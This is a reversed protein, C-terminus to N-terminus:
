SGLLVRVKLWLLDVFERLSDSSEIV